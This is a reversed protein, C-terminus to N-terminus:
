YLKKYHFWADRFNTRSPLPLNEGIEEYWKGLIILTNLSRILNEAAMECYEEQQAETLIEERDIM